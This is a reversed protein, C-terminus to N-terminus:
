PGGRRYEAALHGLITRLENREVKTLNAREGKGFVTLLFAPVQSGGYFTIM